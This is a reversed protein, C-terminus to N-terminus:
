KRKGRLEDLYRRANANSPDLRVAESMDEEAEAWDRGWALVGLNFRTESLPFLALARRELAAAEDKRGLRELAVGHQTLAQASQRRLADAVPPLARFADADARKAAFLRDAFGSLADADAWRGEAAALFALFQPADPMAWEM